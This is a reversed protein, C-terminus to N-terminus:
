ERSGRSPQHRSRNGILNQAAQGREIGYPHDHREGDHTVVDAEGGTLVGAVARLAQNDRGSTPTAMKKTSEPNRSKRGYARAPL